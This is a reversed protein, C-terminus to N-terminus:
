GVIGKGIAEALRTKFGTMQSNGAALKQEKTYNEISKGISAPHALSFNSDQYGLRTQIPM